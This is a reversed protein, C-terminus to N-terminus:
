LIEILYAHGYLSKKLFTTEQEWSLEKNVYDHLTTQFQVNESELAEITMLLTSQSEVLEDLTHVLIQVQNELDNVQNLVSKQESGMLTFILIGLVYLKKM